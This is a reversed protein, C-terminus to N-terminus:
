ETGYVVRAREVFAEVMSNTIKKFAAGFAHKMIKNKFEFQMDLIVSSEGDANENFQWHGTLKKFPGEILEMSISKDPQMKNKTTFSQKIKGMSVSISANLSDGEHKLIKAETCWPLFDPYSKIDNVLAYM